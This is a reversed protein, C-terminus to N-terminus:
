SFTAVGQQLPLGKYLSYLASNSQPKLLSVRLLVSNMNMSGNVRGNIEKKEKAAYRSHQREGRNDGGRNGPNVQGSNQIVLSFLSLLRDLSTARRIRM